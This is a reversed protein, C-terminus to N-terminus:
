NSIGLRELRDILKRELETLSKPESAVMGGRKLSNRKKRTMKRRNRRKKSKKLGKCSINLPIKSGTDTYVHLKGLSELKRLLAKDSRILHTKM